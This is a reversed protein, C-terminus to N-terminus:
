GQKLNITDQMIQDFTTITRANAEYGRQAVILASFEQAIDVNSLELSGGSLSGRGGSGPSGIVAAGSALTASYTNNGDRRLGQLNAFNALGLQGMAATRGNSFSGMIVGDPGVNYETLSGSGYGDQQKSSTTSEAAVQSLLGAKNADFLTWDFSLASAGDGLAPSKIGKVDGTPSTLKGSADFTLAGGTIATSTDVPMTTGVDLWTAQGDSVSSSDTPWTPAAAGAIGATTCRYYHGNGPSVINGVSYPQAAVWDSASALDSTPISINYSWTNAATKSFNFSLVHPAGLSDYVTVPTSYATGTADSANLNTRLQIDGTPNPPNIQGKDLRLATLAAGQPIVGNVAAYGMVQDGDQTAFYGDNGVAFNGARTYLTTGDRQLVFYGDGMIAVDTPVGTSEISGSTLNTATTSVATGAGVQVPDGAGNTGVTQYFLDRFQTHSGKYGVTNLNALNNAITSMATSSATLGSLPISFLPM